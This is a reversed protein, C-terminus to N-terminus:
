SAAYAEGTIDQYDQATIKGKAVAVKVMDKTWFGADFYKKIKDKTM